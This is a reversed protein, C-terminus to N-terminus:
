RQTTIKEYSKRQKYILILNYLNDYSDMKQLSYTKNLYPLDLRHLKLPGIFSM